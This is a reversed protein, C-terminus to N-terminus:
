RRRAAISMQGRNAGTRSLLGLVSSATFGQVTQLHQHPLPSKFGSGIARVLEQPTERNPSCFDASDKRLIGRAAVSGYALDIPKGDTQDNM